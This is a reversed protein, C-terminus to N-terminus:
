NPAPEPDGPQPTPEPTPDPEPAPDPTPELKAHMHAPTFQYVSFAIWGGASLITSVLLLLLAAHRATRPARPEEPPVAVANATADIGSHRRAARRSLERQRAEAAAQIQLALDQRIQDLTRAPRPSANM